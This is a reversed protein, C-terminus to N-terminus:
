QPNRIGGTKVTVGNEDTFESGDASLGQQTVGGVTTGSVGAGATVPAKKIGKKTHAIEDERSRTGFQQQSLTTKVGTLLEAATTDPQTLGEVQPTELGAQQAEQLSTLGAVDTARVEAQTTAVDTEAALGATLAGTKEARAQESALGAAGAKAQAKQFALDRATSQTLAQGRSAFDRALEKGVKGFQSEVSTLAQGVREEESPINQLHTQLRENAQTIGEDGTEVRQRFFDKLTTNAVLDQANQQLAEKTTEAIHPLISKNTDAIQQQYTQYHKEFFTRDTTSWEQIRDALENIGQLAQSDYLVDFDSITSASDTRNRVKGDAGVSSKQNDGGGGFFGGIASGAAEAISGWISM